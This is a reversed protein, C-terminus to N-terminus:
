SQKAHTTALPTMQLRCARDPRSCSHVHTRNASHLLRPAMVQTDESLQAGLEEVDTVGLVGRLNWLPVQATCFTNSWWVPHIVQDPAV